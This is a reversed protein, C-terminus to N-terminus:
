HNQTIYNPNQKGKGGVIQPLFPFSFIERKQSKQFLVRTKKEEKATTGCASLLMVLTLLLGIIRIGQKKGRVKM